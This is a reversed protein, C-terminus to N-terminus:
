RLLTLFMIFVKSRRMLHVASHIVAPHLKLVNLTKGDKFNTESCSGISELTESCDYIGMEQEEEVTSLWHIKKSRQHVSQVFPPM